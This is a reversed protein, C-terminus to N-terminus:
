SLTRRRMELPYAHSAGVSGRDFGFCWPIQSLVVVGGDKTHVISDFEDACVRNGCECEYYTDRIYKSAYDAVPTTSRDTAM